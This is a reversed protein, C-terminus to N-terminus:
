DTPPPPRPWSGHFFLGPEKESVFSVHTDVEPPSLAPLDSDEVATRWEPGGPSMLDTILCVPFASTWWVVEPSM